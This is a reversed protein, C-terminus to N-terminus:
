AGGDTPETSTDTRRPSREMGADAPPYMQELSNLNQQNRKLIVDINSFATKAQEQSQVFSNYSGAMWFGVIVTFLVIIGLCGIAIVKKNM